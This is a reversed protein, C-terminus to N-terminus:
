NALDLIPERLISIPIKIIIVKDKHEETETQYKLMRLLFLSRRAYSVKVVKGKPTM